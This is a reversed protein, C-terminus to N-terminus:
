QLRESYFAFRIHKIKSFTKRKLYDSIDKKCTLFRIYAIKEKIALFSLTAIMKSIELKNRNDSVWLVDIYKGHNDHILVIARLNKCIYIFYKEKNPSRLIRWDVYDEDRVPTTFHEFNQNKEKYIEYFQAFNEDTLKELKYQKKSYAKTKYLIFFFPFFIINLIKCLIKPLKRVFAPHSFFHVFNFHLFFNFNEQWGIKKFVGISKENCFTVCCDSFEIWKETLISGLGQRQWQELIKFDIFWAATRKKGELNIFFPMMGAHAIVKEGSFIVLPTQNQYFDTRNLWQWISPLFKMRNEFAQSYFEILENEPVQTASKIKIQENKM